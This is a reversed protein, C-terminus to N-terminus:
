NDTLGKGMASRVQALQEPSLDAEIVKKVIDKHPVVLGGLKVMLEPFANRQRKQYEVQMQHVIEGKEMVPVSYQFPTKVAEPGYMHAKKEQKYNTETDVEQKQLKMTAMEKKQAELEERQSAIKRYAKNLEDQQNNILNDKEMLEQILQNRFEEEKKSHELVEVVKQLEGYIDEQQKIQSVIEKVQELLQKAYPPLEQQELEEKKRIFEQFVKQMDRASNTSHFLEQVKDLGLGHEYLDVAVQCRYVDIQEDTLVDIVHNEYGKRLCESYLRMRKIDGDKKVYRLVQEKSLGYLFDERVLQVVEPKWGPSAELYKLYKINEEQMKKQEIENM